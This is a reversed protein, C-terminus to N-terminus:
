WEGSNKLIPLEEFWAEYEPDEDVDSDQYRIEYEIGNESLICEVADGYCEYEYDWYADYAKDLLGCVVSKYKDDVIVTFDIWLNTESWRRIAIKM